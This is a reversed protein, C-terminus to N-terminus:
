DEEGETCFDCEECYSCKFTDDAIEIEGGQYPCYIKVM